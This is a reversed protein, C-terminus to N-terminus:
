WMVCMSAIAYSGGWGAWFARVCIAAWKCYMGGLESGWYGGFMSVGVGGDEVFGSGRGAM